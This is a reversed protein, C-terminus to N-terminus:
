NGIKEKDRKSTKERALTKKKNSFNNEISDIKEKDRFFFCIDENNVNVRM